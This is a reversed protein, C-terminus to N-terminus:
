AGRYEPAALPTYVRGTNVDTLIKVLPSEVYAGGKLRKLCFHITVSTVCARTTEDRKGRRAGCSEGLCIPLIASKCADCGFPSACPHASHATRLPAEPIFRTALPVPTGKPLGRRIGALPVLALLVPHFRCGPPRSVRAMWASASRTSRMWIQELCIQRQNSEKRSCPCSIIGDNRQM